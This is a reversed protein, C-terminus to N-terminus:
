SGVRTGDERRCHFMVGASVSGGSLVPFRLSGAGAVQRLSNSVVPSLRTGVLLALAILLLAHVAVAHLGKPKM